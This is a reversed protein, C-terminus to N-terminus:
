YGAALEKRVIEALADSNQPAVAIFLLLSRHPPQRGILWNQVTRTTVGAILALDGQTLGHAAMFAALRVPPADSAAPPSTHRGTGEPHSGTGESAM